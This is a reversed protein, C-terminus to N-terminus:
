NNMIVASTGGSVGVVGDGGVGVQLIHFPVRRGDPLTAVVSHPKNEQIIDVLGHSSALEYIPNGLIGHIWNAGLEMRRGGTM